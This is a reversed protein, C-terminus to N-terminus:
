NYSFLNIGAMKFFYSMRYYSNDILEDLRKEMNRWTQYNFLYEASGTEVLGDWFDDLSADIEDQLSERVKEPPVGCSLYTELQYEFLEEATEIISDPQM